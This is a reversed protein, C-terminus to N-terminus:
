PTSINVPTSAPNSYDRSRVTDKIIIIHLFLQIINYPLLSPHHMHMKICLLYYQHHQQINHLLLWWYIHDTLKHFCHQMFKQYKALTIISLFPNSPRSLCLKVVSCSGLAITSLVTTRTPKSLITKRFPDVYVWLDEVRTTQVWLHHFLAM